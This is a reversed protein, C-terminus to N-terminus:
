FALELGARPWRASILRGTHSCTIYATQLDAGGFCINTVAEDHLQEPLTHREYSGSKPNVVTIGSDVLTGICLYGNAEIAMSDLELAHPLGVLLSWRDLSAGSNVTLIDCGPSYVMEGFATLRRRQVNRTFTEAWYLVDGEPSLGIGNPMNARTDALRLRSGDPQGYYIASAGMDTFWFAGTTDFVLDNPAVFPKGEHEEYLVEAKGSEVDVRQICAPIRNEPTMHGGNNCVFLAGEPGAAMGNPGGGLDVIISVRGDPHVRAVRGATVETVAVSGDPLAVPGEPHHLGEALVSVEQLEM